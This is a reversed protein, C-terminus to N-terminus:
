GKAYSLVEAIIDDSDYLAQTQTWDILRAAKLIIFDSGDFIRLSRQVYVWQSFDERLQKWIAQYQGNQEATEVIPAFTHAETTARVICLIWDKSTQLTVRHHVGAFGDLEDRLTLAYAQLATHSPRESATGTTKGKNLQLRTGVFERAILAMNDPVRLVREVEDDIQQQLQASIISSTTETEILKHHALSLVKAQVDSFDPLPISKVDTLMIQNRDVGWSSASFFLLYKSISSNLWIGTARLFDDDEHPASIGVQPYTIVFDLDSYAAFEPYILIHPAYAVKLGQKGSRTRVCCMSDPLVDLAETGVSLKPALRSLKSVNLVKMGQLEPIFEITEKQEQSSDKLEVGKSITWGREKELDGLRRPFLKSARALTREDRYNGWLALKWTLADGREADTAEITQIESEYITISWAERKRGYALTSNQNMAMPGYHAIPSKIEMESSKGYVLTAAPSEARSQFLVYALNSFNTIRRAEYHRFFATRYGQSLANTLSTAHTLLGAVGNESLLDGVRWTFAECVRNLAVPYQVSNRKIWARAHVEDDPEGTPAPKLSYWPPNGVVWDFQSEAQWFACQDDFFDCHHINRNHLEPFRFTQNHHLEPPDIYSLLTLLLSFEAVYCAERNREIGFIGAQLIHRLEIPSLRDTSRNKLELEILRRFALVLFIGSGCCPDFIKMGTQLPKVANIEHILYDAVPEPTYYAGVKKGEGERHLFQEYISSLLEVPILSFDYIEIDLSLQGGPADGKFISAVFRVIEDTLEQVGQSNLPFVQGNFRKDLAGVLKLLEAATANRGLVRTFDIEQDALWQQSLIKRDWLYRIYIYKGILAHTTAHSIGREKVLIDGLQQLDRLLHQDVRKEPTLEASYAKWIQGSDIQYAAFGALGQRITELTSVPVSSISGAENNDKDYNFGTYARVQGPLIVLLFPAKGVNWLKHHIDRAEKETQAEAVYVVPLPPLIPDSEPSAQITYAGIIRHDSSLHLSRAQASAVADAACWGPSGSYGLEQLLDNSSVM